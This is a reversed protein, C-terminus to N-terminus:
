MKDAACYQAIFEEHNPIKDAISDVNKRLFNLRTTLDNPPMLDALADYSTPKIGQGILVQQWAVESFLDDQYKSIRGKTKFQEIRHQLSDPIDISQRDIWFQSDNRETAIYHLIIFDRIREYESDAQRNYENIDVQNIGTNPFLQVLRVISAQVLHLATSELPELFGSSLGIAVCNKEWFKHRKGTTFKLVRPDALAPGQINQMLTDTADQDSIYDSCFVHGNGVRHQLPIEWQWGAKHAISRTYPRIPKTTKCPVAVASNMPLWKSWNDYEIGLSDGILLARFGTCDIFLDGCVEQGNKLLVSEIFGNESNKNVQSVIGEIRKVGLKESYNRLYNAYLQADFHYAYQLETIPNNAQNKFKAFKNEKALKANISYDWLNTQSNSLQDRLWYHHFQSPGISAGMQGFAHIYSSGIKDWNEFQIGLKFTGQTAKVFDVEDIGLKQNFLSITPITAEGVGLIGIQESEVLTIDLQNGFIKILMSASMWGSAGGGVIVVKKLNENM